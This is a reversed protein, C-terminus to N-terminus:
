RTDMNELLDQAARQRKFEVPRFGGDPLYEWGKWEISDLRFAIRRAGGELHPAEYIPMVEHVANIELVLRQGAPVSVAYELRFEGQVKVSAIRRGNIDIDLRQGNLWGTPPVSGELVLLGEGAPLTFFMQRACLGDIYWGGRPQWGPMRALIMGAALNTADTILSHLKEEAPWGTVTQRAIAAYTDLGYLLLGIPWREGTHQRLLAGIERIRRKGGSFTKAMGYERLCGFYAPEYHLPWRKGLRILLDWDMAYHLDERLWGIAELASRRFFVTQQLIYDSVNMLRWLDFPQTHPFRCTIYGAEDMLYGEGYCAAAEPHQELAEVARRVAGPLLTDDSNLWYVIEGRARQFGKNIAHSQGRDRESIFELRGGYRRCVEATEDTSAGDMVIYEICPYDQTLVSEITAEIFRGQNFSPTVITVLPRTRGTKM